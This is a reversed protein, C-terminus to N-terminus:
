VHQSHLLRKHAWRCCWFVCLNSPSASSAYHDSEQFYQCGVQGARRNDTGHLEENAGGCQSDANNGAGKVAMCGCNHIIGPVQYTAWRRWGSPNEAPTGARPQQGSSRGFSGRHRLRKYLALQGLPRRRLLNGSMAASGGMRAGSHRSHITAVAGPLPGRM